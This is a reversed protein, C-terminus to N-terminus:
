SGSELYLPHQHGKFISACADTKRLWHLFSGQEERGMALWVAQWSPNKAATKRRGTKGKPATLLARAAQRIDAATMTRNKVAAVAEAQQLVEIRKASPVKALEEYHREPCSAYKENVSLELAVATVEITKDAWRRSFPLEKDCYDQFSRYEPRWLEKDRIETLWEGIMTCDTRVSQWRDKILQTLEGLSAKQAEELGELIATSQRTDTEGAQAPVLSDEGNSLQLRQTNMNKDQV